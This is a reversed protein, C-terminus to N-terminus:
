GIIELYDNKATQEDRQVFETELNNNETRRPDPNSEQLMDVSLNMDDDIQQYSGSPRRSIHVNPSSGSNNSNININDVLLEEYVNRNLRLYEHRQLNQAEEPLNQLYDHVYTSISGIPGNGRPTPKGMLSSHRISGNSSTHPLTSLPQLYGDPTYRVSSTGSLNRSRYM